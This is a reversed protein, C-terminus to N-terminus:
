GCHRCRLYRLHLCWLLLWLDLGLRRELLEGRHLQHLHVLIQHGLWLLRGLQATLKLSLQLCLQLM